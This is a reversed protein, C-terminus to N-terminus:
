HQKMSASQLRWNILWVFVVSILLRESSAFKDQCPRLGLSSLWRRPYLHARRCTDWGDAPRDWRHRVPAQPMSPFRKAAMWIYENIRFARSFDRLRATGQGLGCTWISYQPNLSASFLYLIVRRHPHTCVCVCAHLITDGEHVGFTENENGFGTVYLFLLTKDIQRDIVESLSHM